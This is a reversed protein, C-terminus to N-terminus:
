PANRSPPMPLQGKDLHAAYRETNALLEDTNGM